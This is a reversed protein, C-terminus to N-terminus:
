HSKKNFIRIYSFNEIKKILPIINLHIFCFLLVLSYISNFRLGTYVYVSMVIQGIFVSFVVLYIKDQISNFDIKGKTIFRYIMQLFLMLYLFRFLISLSELFGLKTKEPFPNFNSKLKKLAINIKEQTSLQKIFNKTGTMYLESLVLVSYDSKPVNKKDAFKLNLSEDALDGEVNTFDSTVKENWGKSFTAGQSATLYVGRNFTTYNRCPWYLLVISFLLGHLVTVRFNFKINFLLYISFLSLIFFVSVPHCLIVFASLVPISIHYRKYNKLSIFFVALLLILTATLSESLFTISYKLYQPEILLLVFPIMCILGYNLANKYRFLAFLVIVTELIYKLLILVLPNSSFKFFISLVFPWFPPRWTASESVIKSNTDTYVHFDSINKGIILYHSSDGNNYVTENSYSGNLNSLDLYYGKILLVVASILLLFWAQTTLNKM